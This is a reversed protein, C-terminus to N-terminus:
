WGPELLERGWADPVLPNVDTDPMGRLLRACLDGLLHWLDSGAHIYTWRGIV